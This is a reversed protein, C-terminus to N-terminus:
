VRESKLTSVYRINRCQFGSSESVENELRMMDFSTTSFRSSKTGGVRFKEVQKDIAFLNATFILVARFIDYVTDM